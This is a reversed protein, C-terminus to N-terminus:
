KVEGLFINGLFCLYNLARFDGHFFTAFVKGVFASLLIPAKSQFHFMQLWCKWITLVYNRVQNMIYCCRVYSNFIPQRCTIHHPSSNKMKLPVYLYQSHTCTDEFQCIPQFEIAKPQDNLSTQLLPLWTAFSSSIEQVGVQGNKNLM